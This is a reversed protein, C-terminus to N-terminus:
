QGSRALREATERDKMAEWPQGRKEFVLARGRYYDAVPEPSLRIARTFDELAAEIRGLRVEINGRNCYLRPSVPNLRIATSYDQLAEENRGLREYVYGRNNYVEHSAPNLYAAQTYDRLAEEYHGLRENVYGRNYYNDFSPSLGTRIAGDFDKLSERYYGAKAYLMGRASYYSSVESNFQILGLRIAQTYDRLSDEFRLQTAFADGRRAYAMPVNGNMEIARSWLALGTKWYSIQKVTASALLGAWAVCFLCFAITGTRRWAPSSRLRKLLLAAGVGMLLFPAISPLYTYRDAMAQSGVQVVGLVPLLTAFYCGWLALYCRHKKVAAVSGATILIVIAAPLIYELSLPSLTRPYPYFPSLGAPFIMKGLYLTLAKVATLIRAFLSVDTMSIVSQTSHQARLTLFSSLLSLAAFPIKEMLVRKVRGREFRGLPYWDAILLVVPLSVAMPKSLLALFFFALSILYWRGSAAPPAIGRGAGGYPTAYRLYFVVSLMFFFTCLVDKRESIWAVSEVHLPHIGFLLGTVMAATLIGDRSLSSEEQDRGRSAASNLLQVALVVLLGANLGHFLVSTFHHGGPALGWLAYDVAHSVWTLPHWNSIYFDLFAWKLFPVDLSRIHPNDYVYFMDDWNVFDNGLASLCVAVASVAVFAAFLFITRSHMPHRMGPIM